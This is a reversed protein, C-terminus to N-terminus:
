HCNSFDVHGSISHQESTCSLDASGEVDRRGSIKSAQNHVSVLGCPAIRVSQLGDSELVTVTANGQITPSPFSSISSAGISARVKRGSVDAFEVGVLGYRAGTKCETPAFQNGDIRLSGTVVHLDGASPFCGSGAIGATAAVVATLTRGRM